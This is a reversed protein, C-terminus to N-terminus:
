LKLKLASETTAMAAQGLERHGLIAQHQQAPVLLFPPLGGVPSLHTQSRCTSALGLSRVGHLVGSSWKTNPDRPPSSLTLFKCLAPGLELGLNEM